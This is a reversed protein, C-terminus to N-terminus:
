RSPRITQTKRLIEFAYLLYALPIFFEKYETSDWGRVFNDGFALFFAQTLVYLTVVTLAVFLNERLRRCSWAYYTLIFLTMFFTLQTLLIRWMDYNYAAFIASVLLIFRSPAFFSLLSSRGLLLTRDNIFPLLILFVFSSFYYVNEIYNTAFNHLNLESQINDQLFEPTDISLVRQFWSVEEMGLLFFASAFSLSTILYLVKTPRAQRRLLLFIYVFLGCALFSFTASLSEVLNGERGLESFFVPHTLFILLFVLATSLVTWVILKKVWLPIGGPEILHNISRTVPEWGNLTASKDDETRRGENASRPHAISVVFFWSSLAVLM